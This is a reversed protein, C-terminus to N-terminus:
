FCEVKGKVFHRLWATVIRVWGGMGDNGLGSSVSLRWTLLSISPRSARKLNVQPNVKSHPLHAWEATTGLPNNFHMTSVNVCHRNSYGTRAYPHTLLQIRLASPSWLHFSMVLLSIDDRKRLTKHSRETHIIAARPYSLM